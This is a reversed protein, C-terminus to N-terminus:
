NPSSTAQVLLESWALMMNNSRADPVLLIMSLSSWYRRVLWQIALHREQSGRMRHAGKNDDEATHQNHSAMLDQHSWFPFLTVAFDAQLISVGSCVVFPTRHVVAEM